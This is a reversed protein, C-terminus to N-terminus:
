VSVPAKIAPWPDYHELVFDAYTFDTIEKQEGAIFVSPLAKPTRQLQEKVQDLHNLYIHTDGTVYHVKGAKKGTIKAVMMLLLAYQAINFPQGLFVDNSRVIVQIDLTDTPHVYFQFMSHCPTLAMQDTLGANWCDVIIRRSWPDTRILRIADQLQDVEMKVLRGEMEAYKPYHRWMVPYPIFGPGDAWADWIHIDKAKLLEVDPNGGVMWLLEEVIGRFFVKKTTLLPFGNALDFTMKHGFIGITGTGTRDKRVEGTNLILKLEELYQKM